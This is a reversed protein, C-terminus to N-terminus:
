KSWPTDGTTLVVDRYAINEQLDLMQISLMRLTNLPHITRSPKIAVASTM